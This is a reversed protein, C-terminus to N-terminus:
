KYSAKEEGIVRGHLNSSIPTGSHVIGDGVAFAEVVHEGGKEMLYSFFKTDFIYIPINFYNCLNAINGLCRMDISSAQQAEKIDLTLEYGM